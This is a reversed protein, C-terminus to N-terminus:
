KMGKHDNWKMGKYVRLRLRISCYKSIMAFNSSFFLTSRLSYCGLIMENGKKVIWLLFFSIFHFIMFGFMIVHVWTFCSCQLITFIFWDSVHLGALGEQAMHAVPDALATKYCGAVAYAPYDATGVSSSFFCMYCFKSDIDTLPYDLLYYNISVM